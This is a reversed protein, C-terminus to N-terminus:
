NILFRPPYWTFFCTRQIYMPGWVSRCWHLEYFLNTLNVNRDMISVTYIDRGTRLILYKNNNISEINRIFYKFLNDTNKLIFWINVVTIYSLNVRSQFYIWKLFVCIIDAFTIHKATLESLYEMILLYLLLLSSM